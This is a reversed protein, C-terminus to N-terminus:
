SYSLLLYPFGEGQAVRGSEEKVTETEEFGPQLELPLDVLDVSGGSPRALCAFNDRAKVIQFLDMTGIGNQRGMYLTGLAAPTLGM